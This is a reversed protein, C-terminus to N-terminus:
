CPMLNAIVVSFVSLGAHEPADLFSFATRVSKSRFRSSNCHEPSFILTFSMYARRRLLGTQLFKGTAGTHFSM